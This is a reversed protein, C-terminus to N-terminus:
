NNDIDAEKRRRYKEKRLAASFEFAMQCFRCRRGAQCRQRCNMRAEGFEEPIGRNDVHYYLNDLLLNLNGPWFKDEKYVKLLTAEKTLDDTKFEIADIYKAYSDVDEPRIFQGTFNPLNHKDPLYEPRANNCVMRLKIDGVLRKVNKLDFSLPPGLKIYSPKLPIIQQLEYYSTVPYPWYWKINGINFVDFLRLDHIAVYFDQFKETYMAWTEFDQLGPVEAVELVIEKDPLREVFDIIRERDQWKVIIQDAKNMVSYPQRGSVCFQM